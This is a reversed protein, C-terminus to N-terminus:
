KKDEKEPIPPLVIGAQTSREYVAISWNRLGTIERRLEDIEEKREKRLNHIEDNLLRTQQNIQSQQSTSIGAQYSIRSSYWWGIVIVVALCVGSTAAPGWKDITTWLRSWM